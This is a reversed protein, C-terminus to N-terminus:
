RKQVFVGGEEGERHRSRSAIRQPSSEASQLGASLRISKIFTKSLRFINRHLSMVQSYVKNRNREKDLIKLMKIESNNRGRPSATLHSENENREAKIIKLNTFQHFNQELHIRAEAVPESLHEGSDNEERNGSSSSVEPWIENGITLYAGCYKNVRFDLSVPSFLFSIDLLEVFM